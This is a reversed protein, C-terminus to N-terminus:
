KSYFSMSNNMLSFGKSLRYCVVGSCCTASEVTTHLYKNKGIRSHNLLRSLSSGLLLSSVGRELVGLPVIAEAAKKHSDIPM